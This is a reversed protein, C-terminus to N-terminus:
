SSCAEKLAVFALTHMSQHWREPHEALYKDFIATLQSGNMGIICTEFKEMKLKPCNKEAWFKSCIIQQGTTECLHLIKYNVINHPILNFIYLIEWLKVFSDDITIPLEKYKTNLFECLGISFDYTTYNIIKPISESYNNFDIDELLKNKVQLALKIKNYYIYM